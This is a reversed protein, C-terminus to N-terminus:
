IWGIMSCGFRRRTRLVFDYTTNWLFPGLVSGQLVGCSVVRSRLEGNAVPYEVVREHLYHDITRRIYAPFGKRELSWRIVGWALSNFANKIDLSVAIV